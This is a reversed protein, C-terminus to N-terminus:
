EALLSTLTARNGADPFCTAAEPYTRFFTKGSVHQRYLLSSVLGMDADWTDVGVDMQGMEGVFLSGGRGSNIEWDKRNSSPLNSPAQALARSM